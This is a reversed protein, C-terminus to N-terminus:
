IFSNFKGNVMSSPQLVQSTAGGKVEKRKRKKLKNKIRANAIGKKRVLSLDIFPKDGVLCPQLGDGNVLDEQRCEKSVDKASNMASMMKDLEWSFKILENMVIKTTYDTLSAKVILDHGLRCLESMRLACAFEENDGAVDLVNRSIVNENNEGDNDGVVDLVYRSLDM